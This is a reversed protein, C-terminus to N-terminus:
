VDSLNDGGMFISCCVHCSFGCTSTSVGRRPAFVEVGRAGGILRTTAGPLILVCVRHTGLTPSFNNTGTDGFACTAGVESTIIPVLSINGVSGMGLSVSNRDFSSIAVVGSVRDSGRLVTFVCNSIFTILRRSCNMISRIRGVLTYLMRCPGRVSNSVVGDHDVTLNNLGSLMCTSYRPIIGAHICRNLVGKTLGTVNARSVSRHSVRLSHTHSVTVACSAGSIAVTKGACNARHSCSTLNRFSISPVVMAGTNMFGADLTGSTFFNATDGRTFVGSLRGSCEITGRM